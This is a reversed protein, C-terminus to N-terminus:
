AAPGTEEAEITRVYRRLAAWGFFVIPAMAAALVVTAMVILSRRPGSKEEPPFAPSAIKFEPFLHNAAMKTAQLSMSLDEIAKAYNKVQLDLDTRERIVRALDARLAAIQPELVEIEKEVAEREARQGSAESSALGLLRLQADTSRSELADLRQRMAEPNWERELAEIGKQATQYEDWVADYQRQVFEVAGERAITRMREAIEIGLEAWTNAVDAAVQPHKATVLLELVQQYQIERITQLHVKTRVELSRSVGELTLNGAEFGAEQYSRRMRERLKALVEESTLLLKYDPMPLSELMGVKVFPVARATEFIVGVNDTADDKQAFPMPAHILLTRARYTDQLGKVYYTAAGWAALAAVVMLIALRILIRSGGKAM